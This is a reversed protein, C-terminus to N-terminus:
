GKQERANGAVRVNDFFYERSLVFSRSKNAM